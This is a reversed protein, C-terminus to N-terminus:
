DGTEWVVGVRTGHGIQSEITLAAGIAEARERMISLGLQDPLVDSPDFGRGDDHIRLAAGEPQCSLTVSVTSAEAHKAVNNLAEQSIRYLAIQVDDPLPYDGGATTTVPVRTRSTVAEALHGLLEGLPKETLAAPRLELLLTRMEASAGRTLRRLEELARQSEEPHREWVRPLSEAILSASFLTQTVADHLERALREREATAVAQRMVKEARVRETIDLTYEIMRIVDGDDDFVPYGRVEVYHADGTANRHIHETTVPEKTKKVQELPCPFGANECPRDRQHFLAHCTTAEPDLNRAASNAMEVTCDNVNIVCFPDDLAEITGELLERQRRIQEEMEHRATVNRVLAVLRGHAKNPEGKAAISLEYWDTGAPTHLSYVAGAHKGQRTAQAIAAMITSAAPQPLVDTVRRGLFEEPAVYLVEPQPARFDYIHGEHDVEFLMDPLANLTAELQRHTEQLAEEALRRASFDRANELAAAIQDAVLGVLTEDTPSFANARKSTLSLTGLSGAKVVLPAALLSRFRPPADLSVFRQDLLVDPVNIIERSALAHGAVGVGMAFPFIGSAESNADSSAVTHLTEGDDDLWQLTCTDAAQVIEVATHVTQTRAADMDRTTALARSLDLLKTLTGEIPTAM